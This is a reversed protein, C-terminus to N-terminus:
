WCGLPVAVEIEARLRPRHRVSWLVRMFIYCSGFPLLTTPAVCVVSHGRFIVWIEAPFYSTFFIQSKLAQVRGNKYTKGKWNNLRVM